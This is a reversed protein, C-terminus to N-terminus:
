PREAFAARIMPQLTADYSALADLNGLSEFHSILGQGGWYHLGYAPAEDTILIRGDPRGPDIPTLNLAVAPASSPCVILPLGNWGSLIPRHLHGCLIAKIQGHGVIADGFRAFWPDGPTSDMWDIGSIIPPHHMAIVTPTDPYAALESRLWEVRDICFAGGHRGPEITDLILIRLHTGEIAYHMFGGNPRVQPFAAGFAARDDHNGVMPWVPFRCDSIAEALIHYSAADGHETLDGTLLLLDPRNPGHNLRDLVAQFRRLNPEDPHNRDFGIHIDTVQAILV